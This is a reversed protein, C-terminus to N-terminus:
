CFKETGVTAEILDIGDGLSDDSWRGRCNDCWKKWQKEMCANKATTVQPEKEAGAETM